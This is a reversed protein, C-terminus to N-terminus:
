ASRRLHLGCSVGRTNNPDAESNSWAGPAPLATVPYATDAYLCHNPRVSTVSDVTLGYPSYGSIQRIAPNETWEDVEINEASQDCFYAVGIWNDTTTLSITAENWEIVTNSLTMTTTLLLSTPFLTDDDLAYVGMFMTPLVGPSSAFRCFAGIRDWSITEGCFVPSMRGSSTAGAGLLNTTRQFGQAFTYGYYGGIYYPRHIAGIGGQSAQLQRLPVAHLPDVADKALTLWGSGPDGAVEFMTDGTKKLFNRAKATLTDILAM